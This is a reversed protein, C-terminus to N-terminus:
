PRKQAEDTVKRELHQIARMLASSDESLGRVAPGLTFKVQPLPLGRLELTEVKYTAGENISAVTSIVQQQAWAVLGSDRKAWRGLQRDLFDEDAEALDRVRSFKISIEPPLGVANVIEKVKYGAYGLMIFFTSQQDQHMLDLVMHTPSPPTVVEFLSGLYYATTDWVRGVLALGREVISRDDIPADSAGDLAPRAGAAGTAPAAALTVTPETVWGQAAAVDTVAALALLAAAGALARAAGPLVPPLRDPPSARM